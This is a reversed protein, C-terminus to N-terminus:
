SQDKDSVYRAVCGGQGNNATNSWLVAVSVKKGNLQVWRYVSCADSIETTQAQRSAWAPADKLVWGCVGTPNVCNYPFPNTVAEAYEHSAAQTIAVETTPLCEPQGLVCSPPRSNPCVPLPYPIGIIARPGSPAGGASAHFASCNGSSTGPPLMLVVIDDPHTAGFHKLARDTVEDWYGMRNDLDSKAPGPSTDVWWGRLPSRKMPPIRRSGPGCSKDNVKTGSCYQTLITSWTDGKGGLRSFFDVVVPAAGLPDNTPMGQADPKGWESGWFVVYVRPDLLVRGGQYRMARADSTAPDQDPALEAAASTRVGPLLASSAMAPAAAAMCMAVALALLRRSSVRFTSM